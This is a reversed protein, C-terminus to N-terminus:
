GYISGHNAKSRHSSDLTEDIMLHRPAIATPPGTIGRWPGQGADVQMEVINDVQQIGLSMSSDTTSQGPTWTGVGHTEEIVLDVQSSGSTPATGGFGTKYVRELVETASLNCGRTLGETQVEPM